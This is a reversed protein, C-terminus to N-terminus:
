GKPKPVVSYNYAITIRPEESTHPHVFHVLSAPFLLMLGDRPGYAFNGGASGLSTNFPSPNIFEIHGGLDENGSGVAGVSIYYVGSWHTPVHHHPANWGGSGLVNAWYHGLKLEHNAWDQYYRGLAARGFKMANQLVWGIHEDRLAVFEDASHWANRNSRRVGPNKSKHQLILERLPQQHKGHEGVVSSFLPFGFLPLPAFPDSSM